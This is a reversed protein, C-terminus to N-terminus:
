QHVKCRFMRPSLSVRREEEQKQVSQRLALSEERVRRAKQRLRGRAELMAAESRAAAKVEQENRRREASEIEHRRAEEHEKLAKIRAVALRREAVARQRSDEGKAQKVESEEKLMREAKAREESLRNKVRDLAMKWGRSPSHSSSLRGVSGRRRIRGSGQGSVSSLDSGSFSSARSRHHGEQDVEGEGQTDTSPQHQRQGVAPSRGRARSHAPNNKDKLPALSKRSKNTGNEETTADTPPPPKRKLKPYKVKATKLNTIRENMSQNLSNLDPLLAEKPSKKQHDKQLVVPSGSAYSSPSKLEGEGTDCNLDEAQSKGPDQSDSRGMKKKLMANLNDIEEM